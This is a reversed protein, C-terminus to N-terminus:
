LSRRRRLWGVLGAGFGVLAVAAPAPIAQVPGASWSEPGFQVIRWDEPDDAAIRLMDNGTDDFNAMAGLFMANMEVFSTPLPTTYSSRSFDNLQFLLGGPGGKWNWQDEIAAARARVGTVEHAYLGGSTFSYTMQLGAPAAYDLGDSTVVVGPGFAAPDYLVTATMTDGINVGALTAPFYDGDTIEEVTASWTFVYQGFCAQGFLLVVGLVVMIRRM